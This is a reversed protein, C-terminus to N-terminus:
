IEHEAGPVEDLVPGQVGPKGVAVDSEIPSNRQHAERICAGVLRSQRIGLRLVESRYPAQDGVLAADGAGAGVLREGFPEDHDM